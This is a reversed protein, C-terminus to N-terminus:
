QLSLCGNQLFLTSLLAKDKTPGIKYFLNGLSCSAEVSESM